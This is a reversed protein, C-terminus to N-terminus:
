RREEIDNRDIQHTEGYSDKVEYGDNTQREEIPEIVRQTERDYIVGDEERFYRKPM